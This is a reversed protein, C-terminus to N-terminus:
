RLGRDATLGALADRIRPLRQAAADLRRKASEEIADAFVLGHAGRVDVM